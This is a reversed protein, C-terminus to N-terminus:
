QRSGMNFSASKKTLGPAPPPPPRNSYNNNKLHIKLQLIIAKWTQTPKQWINVHILQPYVYTGERKFGERGGGLRNFSPNQDWKVTSSVFETNDLLQTKSSCLGQLQCEFRPRHVRLEEAVSRQTWVARHGQPV